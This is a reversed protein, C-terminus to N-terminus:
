FFIVFLCFRVEDEGSINDLFKEPESDSESESDFDHRAIHRVPPNFKSMASRVVEEEESNSPSEIEKANLVPVTEDYMGRVYENPVCYSGHEKVSTQCHKDRTTM